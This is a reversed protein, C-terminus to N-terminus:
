KRIFWQEARDYYSGGGPAPTFLFNGIRNSVYGYRVTEWMFVWPLEESM